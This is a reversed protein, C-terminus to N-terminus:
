LWGVLDDPKERLISKMLKTMYPDLKDQLYGQKEEVKSRQTNSM